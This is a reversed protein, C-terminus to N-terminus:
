FIIKFAFANLRLGYGVLILSQVTEPMKYVNGNEVLIQIARFFMWAYQHLTRNVLMAKKNDCAFGWQKNVGVRMPIPIMFGIAASYDIFLEVMTCEGVWVIQGSGGAPWELSYLYKQLLEM